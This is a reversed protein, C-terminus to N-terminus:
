PEEDADLYETLVTTVQDKLGEWDEGAKKSVTVFDPTIFVDAVGEIQFLREGLPHQNAEDESSIAIVKNGSFRGTSATFKLSNPNPTREAQIM